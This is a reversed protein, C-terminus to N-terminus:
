TDSWNDDDEGDDSAVVQRIANAKELIATVKVNATPGTADNSKGTVTPRLNFAKTRIQYLFDEREDTEKGMKLQNAEKQGKLKQQDPQLFRKNKLKHIINDYSEHGDHYIQMQEVKTFRPQQFVPSDPLSHDNVLEADESICHLTEDTTDLEPKSVWWQMPPLPPPPPPPTPEAHGHPMVVNNFKSHKKSEKELTPNVNDYSPFDLLPRSLSREVGITTCTGNGSKVNTDVNSVSETSSKRSPSDHVGHDSSGPTEDSEWQDSNYDSRPSRCDDSIYPSSRCFTDDDDSHSVSGDLLPISSEPVLQFSPFIDKVSEHRNSGDPFKLKLKSTELGIIPHFSIKMHELPPSPPLSKIPYGSGVKEKFTTTEPFSQGVIGNQESQELLVQKLSNYHESKEDFSVKRQFSNILLRRSLGFVRSSNEGNGQDPETSNKTDPATPLGSGPTIVRIEGLSNRETQGVGNSLLSNGNTKESTCAQDDDHGSTIFRSTPGKLIQEAVEESTSERVQEEKYGDRKQMANHGSAGDTEGKTSLPGQSTSNSKNFDPPKSPELGLLGGNTWFRVSNDALSEKRTEEYKYINTSIKGAEEDPLTTSNSGFFSVNTEIPASVADNVTTSGIYTNACESHDLVSNAHTHPVQECATTKSPHSDAITNAIEESVSVDSPSVSSLDSAHPGSTCPPVEEMSDPLNSSMEKYLSVTDRTTEESSPFDSPSGSGLNSEHPESTLPTIEQLSDPFNRFTEKNFCVTDRTIEDSYLDDSPSWLELDSAHSNSTLPLIEQLSDPLNGFTEKNFCVPDRTMEESYSVDSQSVLGLNSAHPESTPPTDQPSEPLDRFAEKNVSAADRTLNESDLFDLPSVSVLDLVNNKKLSEALDKATEENIPVTCETPSIVDSLNNDLLNPAETNGHTVHSTFQQVERKTIYDIDNESESEITNLADEYNDPESDIDDTQVRNSVLKPNNEENFLIHNDDINTMTVDEDVNMDSDHKEVLREPTKDRDCAQSKSEVLEEKEDWTVGSSVSAVRKELLDHSISENIHSSVSPLTDTKQTLRSSSPEKYDPEDSRVSNSPHFVCEIYGAGSKSDFSNSYHELDSKTRMDITSATQSSSTRGNIASSVSQMRGSSSHRQEGRLIEGNRRSRKKKSKHSKRAKETYSEDSDASIRKFFTPDSYRRFCSGPGGTDFKDLLHVRPPERCEEYSDMIFHPLDNYIFHNQAPKIRQHWECGATYALHIHSTQALVAKELAPLSAEINQVRVMLRHSRSATTMVQEQLGHFVEAAFDALDGLQRLIGVLGAVAVGDLVAKPEERNTERYLEPQGLSFENRVQLRVLPM